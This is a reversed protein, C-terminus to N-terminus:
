QDCMARKATTLLDPDVANAPDALFEAVQATSAGPEGGVHEYIKFLGKLKDLFESNLLCKSQKFCQHATEVDM